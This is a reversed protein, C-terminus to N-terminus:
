VLPTGAATGRVPAEAPEEGAGADHLECRRVVAWVPVDAGARLLLRPGHVFACVHQLLAHSHTRSACWQLQTQGQGGGHRCPGARVENLIAAREVDRPTAEDLAFPARGCLVDYALAGVSWSDLQPRCCCPLLWCAACFLQQSLARHCCQNGRAGLASAAPGSMVDCTRRPGAAGVKFTTAAVLQQKNFSNWIAIYEPAAFSFTGELKLVQTHPAPTACHEGPGAAALAQSM